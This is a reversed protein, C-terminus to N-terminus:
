IQGLSDSRSLPCLAPVVLWAASRRRLLLPVAAKAPSGPGGGAFLGLPASGGGPSPRPRRPRARPPPPPRQSPPPAGGAPLSSRRAGGAGGLWSDTGGGGGPSCGPLSREAVAGAAALRALRAPPPAPPRRRRRRRQSCGGSGRLCRRRGSGALSRGPPLRSRRPGTRRSLGTRLRPADSGGRRLRAPGLAQALPAPSGEGSPGGSLRAAAAAAAATAALARSAWCGARGRGDLFTAAAAAAALAAVPLRAGSAAACIGRGAAAPSRGPCAPAPPPPAPPPLHLAVARRAAGCALTRRSGRRKTAAASWHRALFSPLSSTGPAASAALRSVPGGARQPARSGGPSPRSWEGAAQPNGAAAEQITVEGRWRDGSPLHEPRRVGEGGGDTRGPKLPGVVRRRGWCGGSPRGRGSADGPSRTGSGFM